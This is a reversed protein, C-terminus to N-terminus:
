AVKGRRVKLLGREGRDRVRSIQEGVGVIVVRVPRAEVARPRRELRRQPAGLRREVRGVPEDDERMCPSVVAHDTPEGRELPRLATVLVQM